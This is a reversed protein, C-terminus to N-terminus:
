GERSSLDEIVRRQALTIRAMVSPDDLDSPDVVQDDVDTMRQMARLRWAALRSQPSLRPDLQQVRSSDNSSVTHYRADLRCVVSSAKGSYVLDVVRWASKAPQYGFRVATASLEQDMITISELM